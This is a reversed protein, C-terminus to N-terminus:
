RLKIMDRYSKVLDELYANERQLRDIEGIMQRIDSLVFKQFRDDTRSWERWKDLPLESM